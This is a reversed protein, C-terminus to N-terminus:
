TSILKQLLTNNLTFLRKVDHIDESINKNITLNPQDKKQEKVNEIEFGM